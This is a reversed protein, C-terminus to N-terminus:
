IIIYIDSPMGRRFVKDLLCLIYNYTIMSKCYAVNEHINAKDSRCQLIEYPLCIGRKMYIFAASFTYM